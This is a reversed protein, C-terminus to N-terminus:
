RMRYPVTTMAVSLGAIADNSVEMQIAMLVRGGDHIFFSKTKLLFGLNM